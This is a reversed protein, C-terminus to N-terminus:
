EEELVHTLMDFAAQKKADKKSSSEGHTVVGIEEIFKKRRYEDVNGKELNMLCLSGQM